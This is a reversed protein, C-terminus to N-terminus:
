CQTKLKLMRIMFYEKAKEENVLFIMTALNLNLPMKLDAGTNIM